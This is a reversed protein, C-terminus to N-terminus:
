ETVDFPSAPGHSGGDIRAQSSKVRSARPLAVLLYVYVIAGFLQARQWFAFAIRLRGFVPCCIHLSQKKLTKSVSTCLVM